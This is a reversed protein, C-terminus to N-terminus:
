LPPSIPRTKTPEEKHFRIKEKREIQVVKSDQVIIEVSGYRLSKVATLIAQEIEQELHSCAVMPKLSKHSEEHM